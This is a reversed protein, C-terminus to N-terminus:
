DFVSFTKLKDVLAVGVKILTKIEDRICRRRCELKVDLIRERRQSTILDFEHNVCIWLNLTQIGRKILRNSNLSFTLTEYIVISRSQGNKDFAMNTQGVYRISPAKPLFPNLTHRTGVEMEFNLLMTSYLTFKDNWGSEMPIIDRVDECRRYDLRVVM